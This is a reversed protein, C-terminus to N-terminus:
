YMGVVKDEDAMLDVFSDYGTERVDKEIDTGKIGRLKLDDELVYATGCFGELREKQAFYVGNQILFLDAAMDRALKVGRKGDATDHGSKVIVLM